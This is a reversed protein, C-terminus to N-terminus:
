TDKRVRSLIEEPPVWVVQGDRWEAVPFGRLAHQLVAERVAERVAKETLKVDPWVQESSDPAGDNM